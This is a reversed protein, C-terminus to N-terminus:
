LQSPTFCSKNQNKQAATVKSIIFLSKIPLQLKQLTNSITKNTPAIAAADKQKFFIHIIHSTAHVYLYIRDHETVFTYHVNKGTVITALCFFLILINFTSLSFELVGVYCEYLLKKKPPKHVKKPNEHFFRIVYSKM